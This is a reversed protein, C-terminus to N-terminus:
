RKSAADDKSGRDRAAAAEQHHEAEGGRRREPCAHRQACSGEYVALVADGRIKRGAQQMIKPVEIQFQAPKEINAEDVEALRATHQAHTNVGQQEPQCIKKMTNPKGM